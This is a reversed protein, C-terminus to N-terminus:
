VSRSSAGRSVPRNRGMGRQKPSALNARSSHATRIARPVPAMGRGKRTPRHASVGKTISGLNSPIISSPTSSAASKPSVQSPSVSISPALGSPRSSFALSPRTPFHIRPIDASKSLALAVRSMGHITPSGTGRTASPLGSLRAQIGTQRALCAETAALGRSVRAAPGGSSEKRPTSVPPPPFSPVPFRKAPIVRTHAAVGRIPKGHRFLIASAAPRSRGPLTKKFSIATESLPTVYISVGPHSLKPAPEAPVLAVPESPSSVPEAPTVPETIPAKATAAPRIPATSTVRPLDHLAAIMSLGPVGVPLPEHGSERALIKTESNSLIQYRIGGWQIRSQTWTSVVIMWHLLMWFPTLMQELWCTASLKKRIGNEPFLSLYVQQRALGRFQDIVYAAALPVWAYFIGYVLATIVSLFGLAYFGLVVNTGLYLIPSFVKVQTYQRKAFELFAKTDFDIMTPLVLSRVFAIKNGAKRAAKSIRLDDNLAGKVLEPIDLSFFVDRHVAMSGGWLVNSIEWGGQTTISGNIVSALQSALNPRKPVLWRYTTALKHSEFNIPATLSALWNEDLSIDSDAFTIIDDGDVIYEFAARQNCVKQGENEAAGGCALIVERLPSDSSPHVWVPNSESLELEESLWKAVPDEWSEFAVVVRYSSYNQSFITDFFPPTSQLDFGKVPVIVVASKQSGTDERVSAWRKDQARRAILYAFVRFAAIFILLLWSGWIIFLAREM